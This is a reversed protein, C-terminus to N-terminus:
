AHVGGWPRSPSGDAPAYTGRLFNGDVRCDFSTRKGEARAGLGPLEFHLWTGRLKADHMPVNRRGVKATGWVHQFRHHVDLTVHERGAPCDVVCKWRGAVWAPVTWLHLTRGHTELTADPQWDDMDFFNSVIRSGPRLEWLLKPRLRLNIATLLYLTVVSADRFDVDFLSQRVFRLREGLRAKQANWYCEKIRQLDIDIGVARAGLRAAAIAIRGDGCGLDYVTDSESVGAMRLMAAVVPPETPVYPVDRLAPARHVQLQRPDAVPTM